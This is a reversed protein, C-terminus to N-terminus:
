VISLQKPNLNDIINFFSTMCDGPRWSQVRYIENLLKKLLQALCVIAIQLISHRVVLKKCLLSLSLYLLLRTYYYERVLVFDNEPSHLVGTENLITLSFTFCMCM